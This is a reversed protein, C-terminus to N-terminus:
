ADGLAERVQLILKEFIDDPVELSNALRGLVGVEQDTLQGDAMAVEILFTM